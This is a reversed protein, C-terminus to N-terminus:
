TTPARAFRGDMLARIKAALLIAQAGRPSAGFRVYRKVSATAGEEDPHTALVLRMAYDQVLPRGPGGPDARPARPHPRPRARAERRGRRRRHHPRPDLPAERKPFPVQLKFLFRDLQAEPLPYTGEMELPNQTALVFFPQDLPYTKRAITVSQEQMAELLASQTKPTARNIEDALVLNAFIPGRQFEFRKRRARGGRDGADRPHGLADPRPHVAHALVAPRAGPGPHARADDQGPGSRGGAARPRGRAPLHAGRGGLVLMESEGAGEGEGEGGEGGAGPSTEAREGEGGEGASGETTGEGEEGGAEGPVGIPMGEGEGESGEGRARLVFRDMRGEGEGSPSGESEGGEGNSGDEGSGGERMRRIMERLAEVERALEEREGDGAAEDAFRHLDEAASELGSEGSEGSESETSDEREGLAEELERRLADLAAERERREEIDRRLRELEREREETRETREAESLSAEEEERDLLRDRQEELAERERRMAEPDLERAAAAMAERLRELEARSPPEREIREALRDMETAATSLDQEGLAEGISESLPSRSLPRELRTLAEITADLAGPRASRLHEAIEGLRRLAETRDVERASLDELIANLADIEARVAATRRREPLSAVRDRLMALDDEHVALTVLHARPEPPPEIAPTSPALFASAISLLVVLGAARAWRPETISLARPVSIGATHALADDIALEAM